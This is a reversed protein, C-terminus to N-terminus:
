SQEGQEEKHHTRFTEVLDDFNRHNGMSEKIELALEPNTEEVLVYLAAALKGSQMLERMRDYGIGPQQENIISKAIKLIDRM